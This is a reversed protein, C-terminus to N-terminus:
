ESQPANMGMFNIIKFSKDRVTEGDNSSKDHLLYQELHDRFGERELTQWVINGRHWLGGRNLKWNFIYRVIEELIDFRIDDDEMKSLLSQFAMPIGSSCIFDLTHQHFAGMDFIETLFELTNKSEDNWSLLHSNRSIQVLYPEVPILIEHLVVGRLIKRRMKINTTITGLVVRLQDSTKQWFLEDDQTSGCEAIADCGKVTDKERRYRKWKSQSFALDTGALTIDEM